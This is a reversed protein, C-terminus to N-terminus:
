TKSTTTVSFSLFVRLFVHRLTMEDMNQGLIPPPDERQSWITAEQLAFHFFASPM